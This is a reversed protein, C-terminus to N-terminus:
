LKFYKIYDQLQYYAGVDGLILLEEGLEKFIEEAEKQQGILRYALGLKLKTNLTKVKTSEFFPRVLATKYFEAATEYDGIDANLDGFIINEEAYLPFVGRALAKNLEIISQQKDGARYYLIALLIQPDSLGPHLKRAEKLQILAKEGDGKLIKNKALTFNVEINHPSLEQAKQLAKDAEELYSSDGIRSFSNYANALEIIFEFNNPHLFTLTRLKSLIELHVSLWDDYEVGREFAQRTEQAYDYQIQHLYPSFKKMAKQWHPLSAEFDENKDIEQKALYYEGSAYALRGNITYISLLSILIASGLIVGLRIKSEKGLEQFDGGPVIKDTDTDPEKVFALLGFFLPYTAITDFIALNNVFYATFISILLPAAPNRIKILNYFATVFIALYSLLGFIGGSVLYELPVNFPKNYGSWYFYNIRAEQQEPDHYQWFAVDFNGWGWGLVPKEKFAKWAIEWAFTRHTLNLYTSHSAFRSIGPVNLWIPNNQTKLFVATVSGLSIIVIGAIISYIFEKKFLSYLTLVILGTVLGIIASRNGTLFLVVLNLIVTLIIAWRSAGRKTETILWSGLFFILMLYAALFPSNAFPAFAVSPSASALLSAPWGGFRQILAIISIVGGTAVNLEAFWKLSVVDRGKLSKIILFLALLHWLLVLGTGRDILDWLSKSLNAGFFSSVSLVLISIFVAASLPTLRPRWSRNLFIDALWLFFIIEVLIQFVMIKPTTLPYLFRPYIALPVLAFILGVGIKISSTIKQSAFFKEM